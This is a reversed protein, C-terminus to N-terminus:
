GPATVMFGVSSISTMCLTSSSIPRLPKLFIMRSLPYSGRWLRESSTARTTRKRGPLPNGSRLAARDLAIVENVERFGRLLGANEKSTFFTIKAAPYNDRVAQVAPLTLIVDGIAKLRILLINEM